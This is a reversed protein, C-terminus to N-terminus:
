ASALKPQDTTVTAIAGSGRGGVVGPLGHQDVVEVAKTFSRLAVLAFHGERDALAVGALAVEVEIARHGIGELRAAGQHAGQGALRAAAHHLAHHRELPHKGIEAVAQLQNVAGWAFGVAPQPRDLDAQQRLVGLEGGRAPPTRYRWCTPRARPM